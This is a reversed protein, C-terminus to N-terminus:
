DPAPYTRGKWAGGAGQWHRRASDLTMATYLLAAPPLGAAQWVPRGYLRLTPAYALGSLAWATAGLGAALPSGHLPLSLAALPGALYLLAMGAVTGALLLPSHRLQAYATRAVMRWIAGLSSNDRLSTVEGRSLGLWVRRRPVADKVRAALACDDILAGRIARLGGIEDLVRRRILVCGGAAAATARAPDSVWPFPYLKQFFFVFAPVLLGGWAGSDDLRAMLSAMALEEREAHAVLRPLTDPAHRIDADTLLVWEADPALRPLAELGAQLAWLKGSWGAPLERAGIVEVPRPSRAAVERAIRGTGDRSADDVVVLSLPGPYASSGHAELVRAITAAEDRAPIVAAVGPWRAPPPPDAPLAVDARWFGGRALLLAGWALLAALALIEM